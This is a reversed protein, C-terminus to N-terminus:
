VQPTTAAADVVEKTTEAAKGFWNAMQQGFSVDNVSSAIGVVICFIAVTAIVGLIVGWLWGKSSNRYYGM